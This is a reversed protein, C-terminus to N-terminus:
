GPPYQKAVLTVYPKASSDSDSLQFTFHELMFMIRVNTTKVNAASDHTSVQPPFVLSKSNKMSTFHVQLDDQLCDVFVKANRFSISKQNM